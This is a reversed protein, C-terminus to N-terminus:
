RRAYRLKPISPAMNQHCDTVLGECLVCFRPPVYAVFGQPYVDASVQGGLSRLARGSGGWRWRCVYRYGATARTRLTPAGQAARSLTAKAGAGCCAVAQDRDPARESAHHAENANCLSLSMGSASTRPCTNTLSAFITAKQRCSARAAWRGSSCGDGAAAGM